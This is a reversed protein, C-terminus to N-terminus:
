DSDNGEWSFFEKSTLGRAQAQRPIELRKEELIEEERKTSQNDCEGRRPYNIKIMMLLLIYLLALLCAFRNNM